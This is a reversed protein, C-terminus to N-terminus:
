AHDGGQNGPDAEATEALGEDILKSLLAELDERVDQTGEFEAEIAICVAEIDRSGDMLRLMEYSVENLEFREGSAIRYVFFLDTGEPHVIKVGEKLRPYRRREELV